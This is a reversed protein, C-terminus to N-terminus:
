ATKKKQLCQVMLDSLDRVIRNVEESSRDKYAEDSIYCTCGNNTITEVIM